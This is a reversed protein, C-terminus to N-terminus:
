SKVLFDMLDYRTKIFKFECGSLFIMYILWRLPFASQLGWGGVEVCKPWILSSKIKTENHASGGVMNLQIQPSPVCVCVSACLCVCVRFRLCLYERV